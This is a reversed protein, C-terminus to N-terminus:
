VRSGGGDALSSASGGVLMLCSGRWCENILLAFGCACALLCVGGFFFKPLSGKLDGLFLIFDEGLLNADVSPKETYRREFDQYENNLDDRQNSCEPSSFDGRAGGPVAHYERVFREYEGM